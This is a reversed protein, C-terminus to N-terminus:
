VAKGRRMFAPLYREIPKVFRSYELVGLHDFWFLGGFAIAIILLILFAIKLLNIFVSGASM